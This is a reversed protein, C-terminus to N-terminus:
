TSGKARMLDIRRIWSLEVVTGNARMEEALEMVLLTLPFKTSMAKRLAYSNGKNDTFAEMKVNLNKGGGRGWLQCSGFHGPTRSSRHGEKSKEWSVDVRLSFWEANAEGGGRDLWGGICAMEETTWITM